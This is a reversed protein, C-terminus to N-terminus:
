QECGEPTIPDYTPAIEQPVLEGRAVLAQRNVPLFSYGGLVRGLAQERDKANAVALLAPPPGPRPRRHYDACVCEAWFDFLEPYTESPDFYYTSGDRQEITELNGRMARQLRRIRGRM